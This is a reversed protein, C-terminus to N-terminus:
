VSPTQFVVPSLSLYCSVQLHRVVHMKEPLATANRKAVKELLKLNLKKGKEDSM